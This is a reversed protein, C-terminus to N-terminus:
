AIARSGRGHAQLERYIQGIRRERATRFPEERLFGANLVYRLRRDALDHVCTGPQRATRARKHQSTSVTVPAIEQRRAVGQAEDAEDNVLNRNVDTRRKRVNSRVPSFIRARM